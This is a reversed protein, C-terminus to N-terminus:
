ALATTVFVSLWESGQPPFVSGDTQTHHIYKHPTYECVDVM